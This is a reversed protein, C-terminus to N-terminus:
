LDFLTLETQQVQAKPKPATRPKRMKEVQERQLQEIAKRKAEAKEEETLQVQHNVVVSCRVPKGIELEPEDIVHVAMSYIEEDAFGCCGSNRVQNLIYTVVDDITRKTSHYKRAFLEDTSARNELYAKITTKFQETGKM